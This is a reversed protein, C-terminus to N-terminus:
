LESEQYSRISKEIAELKDAPRSDIYDAEWFLMETAGLQEAIRLDREFDSAEGPVWVYLTLPM